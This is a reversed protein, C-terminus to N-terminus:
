VKVYRVNLMIDYDKIKELYSSTKLTKYYLIKPHNNIKPFIFLKPPIFLIFRFFM